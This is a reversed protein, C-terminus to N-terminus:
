YSLIAMSRLPYFIACPPEAFPINLFSTVSGNTTGYVTAQDLRVTPSVAGPGWLASFPSFSLAFPLLGALDSPFMELCIFHMLKNLSARILLPCVRM